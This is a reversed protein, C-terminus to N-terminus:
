YPNFDLKNISVDYESHCPGIKIGNKDLCCNILNNNSHTLHTAKPIYKGDHNEDSRIITGDELFIYHPSGKSMFSSQEGPIFKVVGINQKKKNVHINYRSLVECDYVYIDGESKDYILISTDTNFITVNSLKLDLRYYGDNSDLRLSDEGIELVYKGSNYISKNSSM